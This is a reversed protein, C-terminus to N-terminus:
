QLVLNMVQLVAHKLKLSILGEPGFPYREIGNIETLNM